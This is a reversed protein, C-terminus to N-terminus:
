FVSTEAPQEDSEPEVPEQPQVFNPEKIRVPNPEYKYHMRDVTECGTALTASATALLVLTPLSSCRM